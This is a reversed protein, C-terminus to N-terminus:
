ETETDNMDNYTYNISSRAQMEGSNIVNWSIGYRYLGCRLM